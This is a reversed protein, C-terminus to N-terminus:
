RGAMSYHMRECHLTGFHIINYLYPLNTKEEACFVFCPLIIHTNNKMAQQM